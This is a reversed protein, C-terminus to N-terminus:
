LLVSFILGPVLIYAWYPFLTASPDDSNTVIWPKPTGDANFSFAPKVGFAIAAGAGGFIIARGIPTSTGPIMMVLDEVPATVNYPEM